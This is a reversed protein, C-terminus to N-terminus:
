PLVNKEFVIEIANKIEKHKDIIDKNYGIVWFLGDKICNTITQNNRPNVNTQLCTGIFSM